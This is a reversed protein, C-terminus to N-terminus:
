GASLTPWKDFAPEYGNISKEAIKPAQSLAFHQRLEHLETELRRLQDVRMHMASLDSLIAKMGAELAAIRPELTSHGKPM